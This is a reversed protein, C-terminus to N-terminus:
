KKQKTAGSTSNSSINPNRHGRMVPPLVGRIKGTGHPVFGRKRVQLDTKAEALKARFLTATEDNGSVQTVIDLYNFFDNSLGGQRLLLNAEDLTDAIDQQCETNQVNLAYNRLTDWEIWTELAMGHEQAHTTPLVAACLLLSLAARLLAM